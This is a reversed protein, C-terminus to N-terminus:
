VAASAARTAYDVQRQPEKRPSPQYEPVLRRLHQRVAEADRRVLHVQLDELWSEISAIGPRQSAFIKIKDHFTPQFEEGDLQLEEFLKEGPRLGTFRIAIDKGPTHGALRIMTEALDVIRVPEGMDLVFIEAMKGMTSAQLVLQVAEPITMFYRRVEPHTVTVPGGSAIQAQFRPVVSGNSGLVNGFRVSVFKGAGEASSGCSLVMLEAIRKTAGMVNAPNVAKDSSIMLFSRVGGRKSANLVNWTGLVNNNVAEIIHSEMLPVHKYAAAHFVSHIHHRQIVESIRQPDRIDAVEPVVRIHTFRERLENDIHFLPSEANDLLVLLRPDFGAIQRCLESGISGAAGTVLVPRGEISARVRAADLSVPSRGLLDTVSVDRIQNVLVKGSLLERVGPVTKCTVAAARCNALIEQMQGATATSIAVIIEDVRIGRRKLRDIVHGADRGKGLVPIGARLTKRKTPDDDLFGLVQYGLSPKQNIEHVLRVGDGGAGYILIRKRQAQGKRNAWSITQELYQRTLLKSGSLFLFCLILDIAYVSRPFGPGVFVYTLSGFLLSALLSARGIRYLESVGIFRWGIRHLDGSYFMVLKLPIAIALGQLLHPLRTPPIDFDFRLAFATVLSLAIAVTFHAIRLWSGWTVSM